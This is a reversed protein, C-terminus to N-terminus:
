KKKKKNKRKKFIDIIKSLVAQKKWWNGLESELENEKDEIQKPDIWKEEALKELEKVKKTFLKASYKNAKFFYDAIDWVIDTLGVVWILADIVQYWVIKWIEKWSLWIKRWQYVLFVISLISMGFDWYYPIIGALADLPIKDTLTVFLQVRKEVDKANKLEELIKQEEPKMIEAMKAKIEQTHEMQAERYWPRKKIEDMERYFNEMIEKKTAEKVADDLWQKELEELQKNREEFKERMEKAINHRFEQSKESM